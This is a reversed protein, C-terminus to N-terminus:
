AKRAKIVGFFLSAVITRVIIHVMRCLHLQLPHWLLLSGGYFALKPASDVHCVTHESHNLCLGFLQRGRRLLLYARATSLRSGMERATSLRSVKRSCSATFSDKLLEKLEM